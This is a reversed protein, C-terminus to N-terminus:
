LDIAEGEDMIDDWEGEGQVEWDEEDKKTRIYKDWDATHRESQSLGWLIYEVAVGKNKAITAAVGRMYDAVEGVLTRVGPRIMTTKSRYIRRANDRSMGSARLKAYQIRDRFLALKHLTAKGPTWPKKKRRFKSLTSAPIGTGRVPRDVMQVEFQWDERTGRAEPKDIREPYPVSTGRSLERASLEHLLDLAWQPTPM